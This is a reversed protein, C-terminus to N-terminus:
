SIVQFTSESFPWNKGVSLLPDRLDFRIGPIDFSNSQGFCADELASSVVEDSVWVSNPAPHKKAKFLMASWKEAFAARIHPDSLSDIHQKTIDTPDWQSVLTRDLPDFQHVGYTVAGFYNEFGHRQAARMTKGALDLVDWFHVEPLSTSHRLWVNDFMTVCTSNEEGGIYDGRVERQFEILRDVVNPNVLYQDVVGIVDFYFIFCSIGQNTIAM